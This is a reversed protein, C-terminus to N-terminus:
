VNGYIPFTTLKDKKPLREAIIKGYTRVRCLFRLHKLLKVSSKGRMMKRYKNRKTPDKPTVRGKARKYSTSELDNWRVAGQLGGNLVKANKFLNTISSIKEQTQM